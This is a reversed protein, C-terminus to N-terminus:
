SKTRACHRSPEAGIARRLRQARERLRPDVSKELAAVDLVSTDVDPSADTALDEGVNVRRRADLMDALRDTAERGIYAFREDADAMRVYKWLRRTADAGGLRAIARAAEWNINFVGNELQQALQAVARPEGLLGLGEAAARQVGEDRDEHLLTVLPGFAEPSRTKGLARAASERQESNRSRALRLLEEVPAGLKEVLSAALQKVDREGDKVLLRIAANASGVAGWGRSEGLVKVATLAAFKVGPKKSALLPLLRAVDVQEAVGALWRAASADGAEVLSMLAAAGDTGGLRACTSPVLARVQPAADRSSADLLAFVARRESGCAAGVGSGGAGVSNGAAGLASVLVARVTAAEDRAARELLRMASKAGRRLHRLAEVVALCRVTEDPAALDSAVQAPKSRPDFVVDDEVERRRLVRSKARPAPWLIVRYHDAGEVGDYHSTDLDAQRVQARLWGPPVMIGGSWAGEPSSVELKGSPAEFSGEAVLHFAEFDDDPASARLEIMVPITGAARRLHVVVGHRQAELGDRIADNFRYRQGPNASDELAFQHFSVPLLLSTLAARTALAEKPTAAKTQRQAV